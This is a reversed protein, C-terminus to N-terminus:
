NSGLNVPAYEIIKGTSPRYLVARQSKSYVLVKDGNEVREFFPQDRLKEKDSVTAITPRENTPLDATKGIKKALSTAEAKSAAQPDRANRLENRTDIYQYTMFALLGVGVVIAAVILLQKRKSKTPPLTPESPAAKTKAKSKATM